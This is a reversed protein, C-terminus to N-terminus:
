GVVKTRQKEIELDDQSSKTKQMEMYMKPTVQQQEERPISVGQTFENLKMLTDVVLRNFTRQSDSNLIQHSGVVQDLYGRM